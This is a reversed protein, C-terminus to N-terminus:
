FVLLFLEFDIGKSETGSCEAELTNAYTQYGDTENKVGPIESNNHDVLNTEELESECTKLFDKITNTGRQQECTEKNINQPKSPPQCDFKTEKIPKEASATETFDCRKESSPAACIEVQTQGESCPDDLDCDGLNKDSLHSERNKELCVSTQTSQSSPHSCRVPLTDANHVEDRDALEVKKYKCECQQVKTCVTSLRRRCQSKRLKKQCWWWRYAFTLVSLLVVFLLVLFAVTAFSTENKPNKGPSAKTTSNAQFNHCCNSYAGTRLLIIEFCIECKHISRM